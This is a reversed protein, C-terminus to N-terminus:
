EVDRSRFLAAAVAVLVAAYITMVAVAHAVSFADTEPGGILPDGSVFVVSNTSLLWPAIGPVHERLLNEVVALYVFVVGLSAATARGIMSVSLGVVAGFVAMAGIRAIVLALDQLWTGGLGTTDGRTAAVAALALSLLAQLAIALFFVAATVVVIRVALVRLRRPEWTLLTSMSGSQWDAGVSSSGIVLGMVILLFSTGKLIGPLTSLVFEDGPAFDAERLNEDCWQRLTNGGLMASPMHFDGAICSARESLYNAHAQALDAATPPHSNAAAIASGVVVGLVILMALVWVLRRSRIRLFESLVLRIV